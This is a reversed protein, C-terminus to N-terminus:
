KHSKLKECRRNQLVGNEPIYCRTNRHFDVSTVSSFIAEMRLTSSSTLCSVLMFCAVVEAQKAWEEVRLIFRHEGFRRSVKVLSCSTVDWFISSNVKNNTIKLWKVERCLIAHVRSIPNEFWAKHTNLTEETRAVPRITVTVRYVLIKSTCSKFGSLTALYGLKSRLTNRSGILMFARTNGHRLCPSGGDCNRGVRWDHDTEWGM